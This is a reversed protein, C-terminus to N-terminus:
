PRYRRTSVVHKPAHKQVHRSSNHCATAHIHTHTLTLTYASVRSEPLHMLGGCDRGAYAASQKRSSSANLVLLTSFLYDRSNKLFM